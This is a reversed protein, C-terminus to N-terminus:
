IHIAGDRLSSTWRSRERTALLAMVGLLGLDDIYGILPLFAEPVLDFPSVVYILTGIAAIWSLPSIKWDGKLVAKIFRIWVRIM